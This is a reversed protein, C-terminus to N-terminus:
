RKRRKRGPAGDTTGRMYAHYAAPTNQSILGQDFLEQARNGKMYADYAAPTNQSILGQDFLEQARNGAKYAQYAAPTNQSILGQDFLEQARNGKMYAQYAAPTNQSILGQDFLEQALNEANLNAKARRDPSMEVNKKSRAIYLQEAADADIQSRGLQKNLHHTVKTRIMKVYKPKTKKAKDRTAIKLVAKIERDLSNERSSPIDKAESPEDTPEPPEQHAEARNEVWGQILGCYYEDVQAARLAGVAQQFLPVADIAPANAVSDRVANLFFNRIGQIDAIEQNQAQGASSSGAQSSQSTRAAILRQLGDMVRNVVLDVDARPAAPGGRAAPQAAPAPQPPAPVPEAPRGARLNDLTTRRDEDEISLGPDRNARRAEHLARLTGEMRPPMARILHIRDPEALQGMAQLIQDPSGNRIQEAVAERQLNTVAEQAEAPAITPPPPAVQPGLALALSSSRSAAMASAQHVALQMAPPFAPWVQDRTDQPLQVFMGAIIAPDGGGVARILWNWQVPTM